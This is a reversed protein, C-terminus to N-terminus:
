LFYKLCWDCHCRELSPSYDITWHPIREGCENCGWYVDIVEDDSDYVPIRSVETLQNRCHPCRSREQEIFYYMRWVYTMIALILM